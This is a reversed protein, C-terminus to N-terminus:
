SIGPVSTTRTEPDVLKRLLKSGDKSGKRDLCAPWLLQIRLNWMSYQVSADYAKLAKVAVEAGDCWTAPLFRGLSPLFDGPVSTDSSESSLLGLSPSVVPPLLTKGEQVSPFVSDVVFSLIGVPLLGDFLSIDELSAKLASVLWAPFNFAAAIEQGSLPRSGWQTKSRHSSYVVPKLLKGISLLDLPRYHAFSPNPQVPEVPLGYSIIDKVSRRLAYDTELPNSGDSLGILM